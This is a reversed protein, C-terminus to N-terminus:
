VVPLPSRPPSLLSCDPSATDGTAFPSTFLRQTRASTSPRSPAHVFFHFRGHCCVRAPCFKVSSQPFEVTIGLCSTKNFFVPVLWSLLSYLDRRPCHQQQGGRPSASGHDRPWEGKVFWDNCRHKRRCQKLLSLTFRYLM